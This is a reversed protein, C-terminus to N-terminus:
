AVGRIMPLETLGLSDIKVKIKCLVPANQCEPTMWNALYAGQIELHKLITMTEVLYISNVLHRPVRTMELIETWDERSSPLIMEVLHIRSTDHLARIWMKLRGLNLVHIM